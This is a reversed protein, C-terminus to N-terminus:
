THNNYRIWSLSTILVQLVLPLNSTHTSLNILSFSYCLSSSYTRCLHFFLILTIGLSLLYSPSYKEPQVHPSCPANQLVPLFRNQFNIKPRILHTGTCSAEGNHTSSVSKLYQLHCHIYQFATASLRHPTTSWVSSRFHSLCSRVIFTWTERKSFEFIL